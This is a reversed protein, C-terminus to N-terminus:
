FCKCGEGSNKNSATNKKYQARSGGAQQKTVSSFLAIFIIFFITIIEICTILIHRFISPPGTKPIIGRVWKIFLVILRRLLLLSNTTGVEHHRGSTTWRSERFSSRGGLLFIKSPPGTKSSILLFVLFIHYSIHSQISEIRHYCRTFSHSLRIQSSLSLSLLFIFPFFFVLNLFNFKNKFTFLLLYM